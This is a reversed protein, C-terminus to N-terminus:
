EGDKGSNTTTTTGFVNHKFESDDLWKNGLADDLTNTVSVKVPVIGTVDGSEDTTVGQYSVTVDQAAPNADYRWSWETDEQVAYEGYPLALTVSGTYMGSDDADKGVTVSVVRADNPEDKKAVEFNFTMGAASPEGTQKTIQLLGSLRLVADGKVYPQPADDGYTNAEAIPTAGGGVPYLSVPVDSLGSPTGDTASSTYSVEDVHVVMEPQAYDETLSVHVSPKGEETEFSWALKQGYDVDDSDKATFRYTVPYLNLENSGDGVIESIEKRSFNDEADEWRQEGDATQWTVFMEQEAAGDASNKENLQQQILSFASAQDPNIVWQDGQQIALTDDGDVSIRTLEAGSIDHYVVQYSMVYIATYISRDFCEDEALRYDSATTFTTYNDGGLYDASWGVFRYNDKSRDAHIWFATPDDARVEGYRFSLDDPFKGDINSQVISTNVTRFVPWLEMSSNVVTNSNVMEVDDSYEVYGADSVPAQETWGKFFANAVEITPYPSEGLLDGKNRTVIDVREAVTGAKANVHYVVVLPEYLAVFEYSLGGRVTYSLTNEGESVTYEETTVNGDADTIRVEFGTLVYPTPQEDEGVSDTTGDLIKVTGSDRDCPFSGM